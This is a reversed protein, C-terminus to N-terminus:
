KEGAGTKGPTGFTKQNYDPNEGNIVSTTWTDSLTKILSKSYASNSYAGNNYIIDGSVSDLVNGSLDKLALSYATSRTLSVSSKVYISEDATGSLVGSRMAAILYKEGPMLNKVIGNITWASTGERAIATNALSLIKQSDNLIEIWDDSATSVGANSTSGAWNIETLIIKDTLDPDKAILISKQDKKIGNKKIQIFFEYGRGGIGSLSISTDSGNLTQIEQFSADDQCNQLPSKCLWISMSTENEWDLLISDVGNYTLSLTYIEEIEGIEGENKTGPSAFTKAEYGNQTSAATSTGWINGDMRVMSKSYNSNLYSGNQIIATGLVTDLLTEDVLRIELDYTDAQTLSLASKVAFYLPQSQSFIGTNKRAVVLNGQPPLIMDIGTISWYSSGIRKFKLNQTSLYKDSINRAEIWDDATDSIGEDSVSGAWMVESLIIKNALKDPDIPLIINKRNKEVGNEQIMVFYEYGKGGMSATDMLAGSGQVTSILTYDESAQCLNQGYPKRCLYVSILAEKQWDAQIKGDGADSLLLPFFSPEGTFSVGQQLLFDKIKSVDGRILLVLGNKLSLNRQTSKANGLPPTIFVFYDETFFRESLNYFSKDQLLEYTLVPKRGYIFTFPIAWSIKEYIPPNLTSSVTFLSRKEKDEFIDKNFDEFLQEEQFVPTFFFLESSADFLKWLPPTNVSSSIIRPKVNTSSSAYYVEKPTFFVGIEYGGAEIYFHSTNVSKETGSKGSLIQEYENELHYFLSPTEISLYCLPDESLLFVAKQNDFVFFEYFDASNKQILGEQSIGLSEPLIGKPRIMANIENLFTEKGKNIRLITKEEPPSFSKRCAALALLFLFFLVTKRM